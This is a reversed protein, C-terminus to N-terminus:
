ERQRTFRTLLAAKVTAVTDAKQLAEVLVEDPTPMVPTVPPEYYPEERPDFGDGVEVCEVDTALLGLSDALRAAAEEPTRNWAERERYGPFWKDGIRFYRRIM